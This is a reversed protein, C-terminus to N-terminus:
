SLVALNLSGGALPDPPASYDGWRSLQGFDGRIKCTKPGLNRQFHAGYKSVQIIVSFVSGIMHCLKVAIPRPLEFIERHFLGCVYLFM